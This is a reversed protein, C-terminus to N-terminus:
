INENYFSLPLLESVNDISLIKNKGVMIVKIPKAFRVESELMVQRCAGCPTVADDVLKGNSFATIVITNIAVNPYKSNAYFVAVREACMGSPYAINEQNNGSIIEDNELLITAGVSFNSYPAYAKNACNKSEQILKQEMASLESESDYEVVTTILEKKIM